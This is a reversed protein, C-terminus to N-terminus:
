DLRQYRVICVGYELIVSSSPTRNIEMREGERRKKGDKRQKEKKEKEKKKERESM